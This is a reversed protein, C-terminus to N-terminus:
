MSLVLILGVTSCCWNRLFSALEDATATVDFDSLMLFGNARIFKEMDDANIYVGLWEVPLDDKITSKGSGNPGAFVRLRPVLDDM